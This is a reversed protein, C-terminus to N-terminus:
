RARSRGSGRGPARGSGRVGAGGASPCGPQTASACAYWPSALAGPGRGGGGTSARWPMSRVARACRRSRRDGKVGTSCSTRIVSTPTVPRGCFRAPSPQTAATSHRIPAIVVVTGAFEPIWHRHHRSASASPNAGLGRPLRHLRRARPNAASARTAWWRTSSPTGANNCITDPQVETAGLRHFFVAAVRRGAALPHGHLARAPHPGGRVASDVQPRTSTRSVVYAEYTVRSRTFRPPSGAFIARPNSLNVTGNLTNTTGPEHATRPAVACVNM